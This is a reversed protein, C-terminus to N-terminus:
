KAGLVWNDTMGRSRSMAGKKDGVVGEDKDYIQQILVPAQLSTSLLKTTIQAIHVIPNKTIVKKM